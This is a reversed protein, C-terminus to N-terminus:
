YKKGHLRPRMENYKMKLELHTYIDVGKDKALVCLRAIARPLTTSYPDSYAFPLIVSLIREAFTKKHFVSSIQREDEMYFDMESDALDIQLFGCLDLLRIIADALEDELTDKILCEFGYRWHQRQYEETRDWIYKEMFEAKRARLGSRDANVAEGLETFVLCIDHEVSEANDHFGHKTANSYAQDRMANWDIHLRITEM